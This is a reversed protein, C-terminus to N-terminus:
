KNPHSICHTYALYPQHLPAPLQAHAAAAARAGGGHRGCLRGPQAAVQRMWPRQMCCPTHQAPPPRPAAAAHMLVVRRKKCAATNPQRTPAHSLAHACGARTIRASAPQQPLRHKGQQQCRAHSVPAHQMGATTDNRPTSDIHARMQMAAAAGRLPSAPESAPQRRAARHPPACCCRAAIGRSSTQKHRAAATSTTQHPPPPAQDDMWRAHACAHM